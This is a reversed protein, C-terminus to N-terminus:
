HVMFSFDGEMKHGDGGMITWYVRYTGPILSPLPYAFTDSAVATAAFSTAIENDNKDKVKLNVLMVKSDFDVTINKPSEMLMANDAPSSTKLGTHAVVSM